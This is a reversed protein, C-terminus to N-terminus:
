GLTINSSGIAFVESRLDVLRQLFKPARYDNALYVLSGPAYKRAEPSSWWYQFWYKRDSLAKDLSPPELDTLIRYALVTAPAVLSDSMITHADFVRSHVLGLILDDRYRAVAWDFVHMWFPGPKRLTHVLEPLDWDPLQDIYLHNIETTADEPIRGFLFFSITNQILEGMTLSYTPPFRQPDSADSSIGLLAYIRDLKVSAQCLEFKKLLTALTRDESFWSERRMPGPMLELVAKADIQQDWHQGELLTPMFAFTRSSVAHTGCVVTASRACAVEQLVWIRQFWPRALLYKFGTAVECDSGLKLESSEKSWVQLPHKKYDSHQLARKDLIAMMEMAYEVQPMCQGLWILVSEAHQYVLRMQGVQHGKEQDNAQDICLADVWLIRDRDPLRLSMLAEFLNTTVSVKRDNLVIQAGDETLPDGGWTYSLAEYPVGDLESLFTEILECRIDPVFTGQYLRVIRIADRSLDIPSYPFVPM